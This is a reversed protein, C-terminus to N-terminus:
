SMTWHRSHSTSASSVYRANSTCASCLSSRCKPKGFSRSANRLRGIEAQPRRTNGGEDMVHGRQLRAMGRIFDRRVVDLRPPRSARAGLNTPAQRENDETQNSHPTSGVDVAHHEARM